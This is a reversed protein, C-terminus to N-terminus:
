ETHIVFLQSVTIGAPIETQSVHFAFDDFIDSNLAPSVQNGSVLGALSVHEPTNPGTASANAAVWPWAPQACAPTRSKRKLPDHSPDVRRAL